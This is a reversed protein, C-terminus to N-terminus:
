GSVQIRLEFRQLRENHATVKRAPGHQQQLKDALNRTLVNRRKEVNEGFVRLLVSDAGRALSHDFKLARLNAANRLIFFVLETYRTQAQERTCSDFYEGQVFEPQQQQQGATHITVQM